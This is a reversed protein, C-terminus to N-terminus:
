RLLTGEREGLGEEAVVIGGDSEAQLGGLKRVRWADRGADGVGPDATKAKAGGDASRRRGTWDGRRLFLLAGAEPEVLEGVPARERGLDEVLKAEQGM